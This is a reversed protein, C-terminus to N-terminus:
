VSRVEEINWAHSVPACLIHVSATVLLAYAL